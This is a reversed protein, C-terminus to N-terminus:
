PQFETKMWGFSLKKILQQYDQKSFNGRRSFIHYIEGRERVKLKTDQYGNKLYFARRRVRQRYNDYKEDVEEMTLLITGKTNEAIWDLMKSGYGKSRLTSNTALYIIFTINQDHILYCFGCFMGHDYFALFDVSKRYSMWLLLWNPIRENKPFSIEYERLVRRYDKTKRTVKEVRLM